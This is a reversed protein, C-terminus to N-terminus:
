LTFVKKYPQLSKMVADQFDQSQAQTMPAPESRNSCVGAFAVAILIPLGCGFIVKKTSPKKKEDTM